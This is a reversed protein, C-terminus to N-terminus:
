RGVFRYKETVNIIATHFHLIISYNYANISTLYTLCFKCVLDPALQPQM